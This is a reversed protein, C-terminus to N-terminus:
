CVVSAKHLTTSVIIHPGKFGKHALAFITLHLLCSLFSRRKVVRSVRPLFFLLHPSPVLVKESSIRTRFAGSAAAWAEAAGAAAGLGAGWVAAAAGVRVRVGWAGGVWSGRSTETWTWARPDCTTLTPSAAWSGAVRDKALCAWALSRRDLPTSARSYHARAAAPLAAQPPCPPASSPATQGSSAAGAARAWAPCLCARLSAVSAASAGQLSSPPRVSFSHPHSHRISDDPFSANGTCRPSSLEGIIGPRPYFPDLDQSGIGGPYLGGTGGGGGSSSGPQLPSYPYAPMREAGRPQAAASLPQPLMQTTLSHLLARLGQPDSLMRAVSEEGGAVADASPEGSHLHASLLLEATLSNGGKQSLTVLVQESAADLLIVSLSYHKGPLARHKYMVACLAPDHNWQDPLLRAEPVERVPAAFGSVQNQKVEAVCTFGADLMHCHLALVLCEFRTQPLLTRPIRGLGTPPATIPAATATGGGAATAANASTSPGAASAKAGSGTKAEVTLVDNNQISCAQITKEDFTGWASGTSAVRLRVIDLPRDVSSEILSRLERMTSHPSVAALVITQSDPTRIKLRWQTASSSMAASIAREELEIRQQLQSITALAAKHVVGGSSLSASFERLAALEHRATALESVSMRGGQQQSM